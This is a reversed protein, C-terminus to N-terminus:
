QRGLRRNGQPLIHPHRGYLPPGSSLGNHYPESAQTFSRARYLVVSSPDMGCQPSTHKGNRKAARLTEVNVARLFDEIIKALEGGM